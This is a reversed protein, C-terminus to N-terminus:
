ARRDTRPRWGPADWDDDSPDDDLAALRDARGASALDVADFRSRHRRHGREFISRPDIAAARRRGISLAGAGDRARESGPRPNRTNRRPARHGDRASRLTRWAM